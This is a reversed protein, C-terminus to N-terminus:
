CTRSEWELAALMFVGGGRLDNQRLKISSYYEFTANSGLSGVEVTKEWNLTGDDNETVFMDVMGRYAKAATETFEEKPLIGLRLGKLLAFTFMVSASSEIYNGPRGPYPESM